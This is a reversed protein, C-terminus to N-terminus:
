FNATITYRLVASYEGEETLADVNTVYYASYVTSVGDGSSLTAIVDPTDAVFAYLSGSSYPSSVVGSGGSASFRMGFQEVGSSSSTATGGIADITHVGNTLTEGDLLITYGYSAETSATITHAVVETSTGLTDGTAFRASSPLVEGFGITSDSVSFSLTQATATVEAYNTYVDLTVGDDTLRFCFDSGAASFEPQLVYELETFDTTGLSVASAQDDASQYSGAVFSANENTLGSAVDQTATGDSVHASAVMSWADSSNIRTYSAAACSAPDAGSVELRLDVGSASAGGENSVQFRLRGVTGVIFDTHATDENEIWTAGTESGDDNRWRYHTQTLEPTAVVAYEDAGIDPETSDRADGDIDDTVAYNADGDLDSGYSGWLTDSDGLLHFDESGGTISAFYSGYSSLSQVCNAMDGDDDCSDDFSANNTSGSAFNGFYAFEAGGSSSIDGVYNNKLVMTGGAGQIGVAGGSGVDVSVGYITNNYVYSTIGADAQYMAVGGGTASGSVVMDYFINNVIYATMSTSPAFLYVGGIFNSSTTQNLGHCISHTLTFTSTATAYFLVCGVSSGLSSVNVGDFELGEVITHSEESIMIAYNAAPSSESPAFVYGTGATGDHRQSSGVESTLNPAYLHLYNSSDTTWGGIYVGASTSQAETDVADGYFAVRALINQAVLDQDGSGGYLVEDDINDTSTIASNVNSVSQSEWDSVGTFGRYIGDVANGATTKHPAGGLYNAVSYVTSSTRGTIFAAHTDGGESYVIVDGVGVNDSGGTPDTNFTATSTAILVTAATTELSSTTNGISRYIVVPDATITAAAYVDYADLATGASTLRFCYTAGDTAASNAKIAYEVETFETDSLVISSTQDSTDKMQGSVFTTNANTLRGSVDTTATADSFEKSDAMSWDADTSVREYTGLSCTTPNAQSVELRYTEGSSDGYGENSVQFRLRQIDGKVIATSTADENNRNDAEDEDENDFIWRFHSQTLVPSAVFLDDLRVATLGFQDAQLEDQGSGNDGENDNRIDIVDTSVLSDFLAFASGGGELVAGGSANYGRVIFTHSGLLSETGNKFWAYEVTNRTGSSGNRYSRSGFTFLYDGDQNITTRGTGTSHSFSGTDEEDETDSIIISDTSNGIVQGGTSNHVRLYDASDPLKVISMGSEDLNYNAGYASDDAAKAELELSTADDPVDIIVMGSAVGVDSGSTLRLYTYSYSQEVPVDDLTIRTLGASRGAGATDELVFGVNYTVLYKGSDLTAAPTTTAYSFSGADLEDITDFQLSSWTTTALTSIGTATNSLRLYDWDDRLKLMWFDARTMTETVPNNTNVRQVEIRLDDGGTAELIGTGTITYSDNSTNRQFSSGHGVPLVTGGLTARGFYTLRNNYGDNYVGINYGFLYHGSVGLDVDIDNANQTYSTDQRAQNNFPVGTWSTNEINHTGDTDTYIAIDGDGVADSAIHWTRAEAGAEKKQRRGEYIKIPGIDYFYPSVLPARYTYDIVVKDGYLGDEISWVLYLGDEKEIVEEANHAVLSFDLPLKEVVQGSFAEFFQVQSRMRYAAIPNIRTAATRSVIALNDNSVRFSTDAQYNNDLNIVSVQYVGERSTRSFWSQYDPTDTVNDAGCDESLFVGGGQKTYTVSDGVPDTIRIAINADCVTHGTDTLVAAQLYVEEGPTYRDQDTNIALVGWVFDVNTRYYQSDKELIIEVRYKGPAFSGPQKPLTVRLSTGSSEVVPRLETVEGDPDRVTVDYVRTVSQSARAELVGFRRLAKLFSLGRNDNKKLFLASTTADPSDEGSVAEEAVNLEKIDQAPQADLNSVDVEVSDEAESLGGWSAQNLVELVAETKEIQEEVEKTKERVRGEEYRLLAEDAVIEFQNVDIDLVPNEESSFAEKQRQVFGANIDIIERPESQEKIEVDEFEQYDVMLAVSELYVAPTSAIVPLTRIGIQLGALQSWDTILADPLVFTKGDADEISAYGLSYDAGDITYFVELFLDPSSENKSVISEAVILDAEAALTTTVGQGDEQEVQEESSGVETATAIEFSSVSSSADQSNDFSDLPVEVSVESEYEEDTDHSLNEGDVLEAGQDGEDEESSDSDTSSATEGGLAERESDLESLAEAESSESQTDGDSDTSTASGTEVSEAEEEQISTDPEVGEAGMIEEARATPLLVDFWSRLFGIDETSSPTDVVPIDETNTPMEETSFTSEEEELVDEQEAEAAAGISLESIDILVDGEEVPEEDTNHGLEEEPLSFNDTGSAHNEIDVVLPEGSELFGQSVTVVEDYRFSWNLRVSVGQPLGQDPIQGSFNGCFLEASSDKKLIAANAETYDDPSPTLFDPEGAKKFDERYKTNPEFFLPVAWGSELIAQNVFVGQENKLYLLSRGYQDYPDKDQWSSVISGPPTLAELVEKAQQYGEEDREPTDIGILRVRENDGLILTDGDIIQTVVHEKTKSNLTDSEQTAQLWGLSTAFALVGFWLVLWTATRKKM